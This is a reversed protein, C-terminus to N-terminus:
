RKPESPIEPASSLLGCIMVRSAGMARKVPFIRLTKPSTGSVMPSSWIKILLTNQHRFSWINKKTKIAAKFYLEEKRGGEAKRGEKRFYVGLNHYENGLTYSDRAFM